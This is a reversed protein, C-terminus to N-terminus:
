RQGQQSLIISGDIWCHGPSGNITCEDLSLSVTANGYEDTKSSRSLYFKTWADDPSPAHGGYCHEPVGNVIEYQNDAKCVSSRSSSDLTLGIRSSKAHEGIISPEGEYVATVAWNRLLGPCHYEGVISRSSFGNDNNSRRPLEFVCETKLIPRIPDSKITETFASASIDAIITSSKGDRFITVPYEKGQELVKGDSFLKNPSAGEVRGGSLSSVASARPVQRSLYVYRLHVKQEDEFDIIFRIGPDNTKLCAEALKYSEPPVIRQLYIRSERDNYQWNHQKAYSAFTQKAQEYTASPSIVIGVAAANASIRDHDSRWSEETVSEFYATRVDRDYTALNINPVLYKTCDEAKTSEAVLVLVVVVLLRSTTKLYPSTM